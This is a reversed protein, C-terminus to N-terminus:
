IQVLSVSEEQHIVNRPSIILNKPLDTVHYLVPPLPQNLNILGMADLTQSLQDQIVAEALFALKKLATEKEQFKKELILSENNKSSYGPDAYLTELSTKLNILKQYLM